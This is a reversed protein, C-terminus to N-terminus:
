RTGETVAWALVQGGTRTFSLHVATVGAHKAAEATEGTLSVAPRGGADDVEIDLWSMRGVKGTGIAKFCAEKAAFGRAYAVAPRNCRGCRIREVETFLDGFGDGGRRALEREVRAVEVLDIGSGLIM